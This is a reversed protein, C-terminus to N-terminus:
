PILEVLGWLDLRPVKVETGEDGSQMALDIAEARPRHFRARSFRRGPFTRPDIRLRLNERPLLKDEAGDYARNLLHLVVPADPDGPKARAVVMVPEADEVTIPSGALAALRPDDPWQLLREDQRVAELVQQQAHDMDRPDCATIVADYDALQAATIRDDLWNDGAVAVTFPINREALATCVPEIRGRGRRNAANDYVLAVKAVAEYGDLLRAQERVFRYLWAYEQEPGNYWHTGKEQTYCWQRHPAMLTHGFAYSLAAWSRVLAPKHQEAVFAWDQGSATSAVPRDLGDGLKYISIPHTTPKLNEAGHHVECCFYSLQPAIALAQPNSLGSNVSLHLPGGHLDEAKRRYAGVYASNARIHFTYFEQALPLSGRRSQYDEPTVGRAQLFARYDFTELDTIGLHELQEAPVTDALYRRFGALCHRCFCGALWTVTHSSGRYDDIHLGDPGLPMRQELRSELFARYLPANSCFWWAPQGQHTHDWLWPVTFPEGAFNRAAADLFDDSYDVMGAFETLWGVSVSFSRIGAQHAQRIHARDPRGAWGMVTCGYAEIMASNDYMFVVDSRRIARDGARSNSPICLTAPLLGALATLLIRSM